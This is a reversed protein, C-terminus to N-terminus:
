YKIYTGKMGIKGLRKGIFKMANKLIRINNYKKCIRRLVNEPLLSMRQTMKILAPMVRVVNDVITIDAAQATRSLPNLDIAAVLKGMKKLAETRDGDELPVLVADAKLIGEPDVSRRLSELEPIAARADVGLINQAGANSLVGHIAKERDPTRYFLNIELKSELCRSLEVTDEACLAALNGNVSIVPNEALLFAAVCAEMAAVAFPQTKEEILYDFAEGRGHAILGAMAVVNAKCGEVIKERYHLSLARPHSAPINFSM